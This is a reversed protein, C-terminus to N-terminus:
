VILVFPLNSGVDHTEEAVPAGVGRGVRGADGAHLLRGVHVDDPEHARPADLRGEDELSEGFAGVAHDNGAAMRGAVAM